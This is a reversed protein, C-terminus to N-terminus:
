FPKPIDGHRPLKKAGLFTVKIANQREDTAETQLLKIRWKKAKEPKNWAEYLKFL